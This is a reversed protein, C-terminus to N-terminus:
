KKLLRSDFNFAVPQGTRIHAFEAHAPNLLFNAQMDIVVSPVELVASANSKIWADGLQALAAPAPYSRWDSPLRKRDLRLVLERSFTCPILAYAPRVAVDLHVLVELAALAANEATYVVRLGPSTWRGGALRAGEGDFAHAAHRAKTIRWATIV